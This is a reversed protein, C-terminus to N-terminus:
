KVGMEAFKAIFQEKSLFGEHRWVENGDADFFIQTPIVRIRYQEGAKPNKWVDIFDVVVRGEYEKRLEVLIPAMKKCPICKDAGLDVVRPLKKPAEVSTAPGESDQGVAVTPQSTPVPPPAAASDWGVPEPSEGGVAKSQDGVPRPAMTAAGDTAEGVVKASVTPTAAANRPPKDSSTAGDVSQQTSRYWAVGGVVLVVALVILINGTKM